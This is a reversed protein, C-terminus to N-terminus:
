PVILTNVGNDQITGDQAILVTNPVGEGIVIDKISANFGSVDNRILVSSDPNGGRFPDVALAARASGRIENNAVEHGSVFGRIDIGASLGTFAVGNPPSMTVSNYMVTAKDMTWPPNLPPNNSIQSFVGIGIAQPDPWECHITNNTIAYSGDNAARIVEPPSSPGSVPGTFIENGEVFAQGGVHRINIAPETTNKIKNGIIYIRAENNPSLGVSFVTIGLTNDTSTGGIMDIENHAVLVVGSIKEPHGPNEPNPVAGSTNIDIASSGLAPFLGVREIKCNTIAVGKAAYVVIGKAAPGILHLGQFRVRVGPAEVYFPISGGEITADNEGSIGVAKSVLITALPYEALATPITPPIAFSFYGELIVEGPINVAAQVAPVDVTPNNTGVVITAM